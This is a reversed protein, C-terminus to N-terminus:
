LLYDMKMKRIRQWSENIRKESIRGEEILEMINAHITFALEPEYNLNNGFLLIDTGAELALFIAEKLSYHKSIAGMQMDDSIIVGKFGFNQRLVKNIFVPSLSAPKTDFHANYLHATMIMGNFGDAIMNKYPLLEKDNWTDTIDTFGLHSDKRASGHGPFHKLTPCIGSQELGAVFATAHDITEKVTKSFARELGGIAPSRKDLLDVCPAFNLNFGLEYLTQGIDKAVLFTEEKSGKGLLEASPYDKFGNKSSIRQVKGGEQDIGIFLPFKAHAKIDKLLANVQEKSAINYPEVKGHKYFLVTTGVIGQELAKKMNPDDELSLGKFGTCIMQGVKYSLNNDIERLLSDDKQQPASGQAFSTQVLSISLLLCAISLVLTKTKQKM